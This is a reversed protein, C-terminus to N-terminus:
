ALGLVTLLAQIEPNDSARLLALAADRQTPRPTHAKVVRAAAKPLPVIAGHDDYTHLVPAGSDDTYSGLAPVAIGAATLEAHLQNLNHHM